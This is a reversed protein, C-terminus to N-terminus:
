IHLFFLILYLHFVYVFISYKGLIELPYFRISFGNCLHYLLLAGIFAFLLTFLGSSGWSYVAGFFLFLAVIAPSSGFERLSRGVLMFFLTGLFGYDTYVDLDLPILTPLLFMLQWPVLYAFPLVIGISYLVNTVGVFGHSIANIDYYFLSLAAVLIWSASRLVSSLSRGPLLYGSIMMFLPFSFRGLIRLPLYLSTGDYLFLGLHDLIMLVIALGRLSDLWRIRM